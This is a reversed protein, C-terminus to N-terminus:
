TRGLAARVANVAGAYIVREGCEIDASGTLVGELAERLRANEAELEAIRDAAEEVMQIVDHTPFGLWRQDQLRKILDSM